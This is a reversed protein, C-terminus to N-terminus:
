VAGGDFVTPDPTINAEAGPNTVVRDRSHRSLLVHPIIGMASYAAVSAWAAGALGWAPILVLDGVVVLGLAALSAPMWDLYSTHNLAILAGGRAPINELGEFRLKTGNMAVVAPVVMEAFRFFPEAM